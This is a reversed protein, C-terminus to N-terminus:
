KKEGAKGADATGERAAADPLRGTLRITVKTGPEPMRETFVEWIPSAASAQDPLVETAGVTEDGFTV